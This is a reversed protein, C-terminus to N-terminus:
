DVISPLLRTSSPFYPSHCTARATNTCPLDTAFCQFVLSRLFLDLRRFVGWFSFREGTPYRAKVREIERGMKTKFKEKGYEPTAAVYTTHMREGGSDYLAITGTMAERWGDETMLM